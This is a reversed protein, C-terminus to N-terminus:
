VPGFVTTSGIEWAGPTLSSISTLMLKVTYNEHVGVGTVDEVFFGLKIMNGASAGVATLESALYLYQARTSERNDGYSTPYSTATNQGNFTGVTITQSSLLFPIFFTSLATILRISFKM